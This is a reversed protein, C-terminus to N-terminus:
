VADRDRAQGTAQGDAGVELVGVLDGEALGEGATLRQTSRLGPGNYPRGILPPPQDFSRQTSATEANVTAASAPPASAFPLAWLFFTPGRTAADALATAFPSLPM